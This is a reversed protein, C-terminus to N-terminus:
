GATVPEHDIGILSIVPQGLVRNVFSDPERRRRAFEDPTYCTPNIKRQLEAEVPLLHELLESLRLDHGVIMLDIDSQANDTQKAVSGYIWASQLRPQLAVLADGILRELGVTKRTLGVLEGYIPSQTNAWFCKLNGIRESVILGASTLKRLERQLSASGLGSLRLLENLHFKRGSQGFLWPYLRCQSDSFIAKAISM